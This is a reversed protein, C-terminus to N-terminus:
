VVIKAGLRFAVPLWLLSHRNVHGTYRAHGDREGM